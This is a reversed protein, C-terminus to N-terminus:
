SGDMGYIVLELNMDLAFYSHQDSLASHEVLIQTDNILLRVGHKPIDVRGDIVDIKGETADLRQSTQNFFNDLRTSNNDLMTFIGRDMDGERAGHQQFTGSAEYNFVGARSSLQMRLRM